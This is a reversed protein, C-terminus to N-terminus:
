EPAQELAQKTAVLQPMSRRDYILSDSYHHCIDLPNAVQRGHVASLSQIRTERQEPEDDVELGDEFREDLPKLTPVAMASSASSNSFKPRRGSGPFSSREKPLMQQLLDDREGDYPQGHM